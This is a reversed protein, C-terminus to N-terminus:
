NMVLKHTEANSRSKTWVLDPQFGVGTISRTAGTGTYTAINMYQSPKKITPTPLNHTCLAKFGTPATYSFARQGFNFAVSSANYSFIYPSVFQSTDSISFMNGTGSAPVGSNMWTGNKGVWMKGNDMDLAFQIVHNTTFSTGSPSGNLTIFSEPSVIAPTGATGIRAGGQFQGGTTNVAFGIFPYISQVGLILAEWYWKGSNVKATAFAGGADDGSAGAVNLNGNSLAAYTSSYQLPNMTCYNGRVEGGLGTDTGYNTPSDVLSDNGVGATVSFNNPTWNNGNGSSDKGLTTATTGSNDAFKLYFGNTGYTGTYAKPVWRGNADSQAFSTADLAQGDIFYTEALYGNFYQSLDSSRGIENTGGNKGFNCDTNQPVNTTTALSTLQTGNIYIKARDAAAAQTSDFAIVIHYWASADRLVATTINGNYGTNITAEIQDSSTLRVVSRQSSALGHFIIQNAAFSTRKIWFSFTQIDANTQNTSYSRTLYASDASNFRLSRSVQYTDEDKASSLLGSIVENPLGM